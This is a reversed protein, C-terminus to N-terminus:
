VTGHEKRYEERGVRRMNCGWGNKCLWETGSRKLKQIEFTYRCKACPHKLVKPAPALYEEVDEMSLGRLVRELDHATECGCHGCELVVEGM